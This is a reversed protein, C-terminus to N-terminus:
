KEVSGQEVIRKTALYKRLQPKYIFLVLCLLSILSIYHSYKQVFTGAFVVAIKGSKNTAFEVLGKESQHYPIETGNQYVSYGKYYYRPIEIIDEKKNNLDITFSTTNFNRRFDTIKTETHWTTIIGAREKVYELSPFKAPTYEQSGLHYYNTEAAIPEFLGTDKLYTSERFVRGNMFIMALTVSFIAIVGLLRRKNGRLLVALYYAGGIAFFLSAFVFFRSPYQIFKLKTFPFIGWPFLHSSMFILFLGVVVLTDVFRLHKSKEYIFIRCGILITLLVGTSVFQNVDNLNLGNFLGWVVMPLPLGTNQPWQTPSPTSFRYTNALMQEIMPFLYASSLLIAIFGSLVLYYLRKPENVIDKYCIVVFIVVLMFTMAASLLHTVLILSFGIALIYWKKYDAKIIQYTGLLILPLFTMALAESLASRYFLNFLRYLAFTFLIGTCMAIYSSKFLKETSKYTIIGCLFTYFFIMCRYAFILDTKNGLWAFPLLLFDPYFWKTAYGFDLAAGFDLYVPYANHQLAEMLSSLRRLHFYIDYGIYIKNEPMYFVIMLSSLLTLLAIFIWFHNKDNNIISTLRNLINEVM